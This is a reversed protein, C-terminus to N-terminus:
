KSRHRCHEQHGPHCHSRIVRRNRGKGEHIATPLGPARIKARRLTAWTWDGVIRAVDMDAVVRARLRTETDGIQAIRNQLGPNTIRQLFHIFLNRRAAAPETRLHTALRETNRGKKEIGGLRDIEDLRRFLHHHDPRGIMLDPMDIKSGLVRGIELRGPVTFGNAMIFAAVRQDDIRDSKVIPGIDVIETRRM